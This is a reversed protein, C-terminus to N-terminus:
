IKNRPCFRIKFGIWEEFGCDVVCFSILDTIGWTTPSFLDGRRLLLRLDHTGDSSSSLFRRRRGTRRNSGSDVFHDGGTEFNQLWRCAQWWQLVIPDEFGYITRPPLPATAIRSIRNNHFVATAALTQLSHKTKPDQVAIFSSFVFFFIPFHLYISKIM